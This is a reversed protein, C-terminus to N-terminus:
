SLASGKKFTAWSVNWDTWGNGWELPRHNGKVTVVDGVHTRQYLWYADATSMGVCGHSVNYSGQAYTSWPAAHFFEGSNTVREAYMVNPIDFYSPNGPSIGISEGRMEVSYYKEMVLKTGSRTDFGPQGGTVAISKVMKHNIFVRMRDTKLNTKLIISDGVTFRRHQDVQGYIGHGANVSKVNVSVHVKTGPKWYHQPRWHAVTDSMWYWSGDQRPTSTVKMRREFAAKRTVPVDFTVIVPMGVGVVQGKAPYISPFTQQSSTLAATSFSFRRHSVLGNADTASARLIYRTGQDLVPAAWSTRDANFRGRELSGGRARFTVKTLTGGAVSVSVPTDVALGAAHSRISATLRAQPQSPVAPADPLAGNADPRHHHGPTSSGCAALLLSLALAPGAAVLVRRRTRRTARPGSPGLPHESVTGLRVISFLPV